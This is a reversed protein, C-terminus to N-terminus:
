GDWPNDVEEIITTTSSSQKQHNVQYDLNLDDDDAGFPSQILDGHDEFFIDFEGAVPSGDTHDVGAGMLSGSLNKVAICWDVMDEELFSRFTYKKESRSFFSTGGPVNIVFVHEIPTNMVSGLSTAGSGPGSEPVASTGPHMIPISANPASLKSYQDIEPDHRWFRLAQANLENLARAHLNMNSGPTRYKGQSSPTEPSGYLHLFGSDTLICFFVNWSKGFTGGSRMLFGSREIRVPRMPVCVVSSNKRASNSAESIATSLLSSSINAYTCSIFGDFPPVELSWEWDLKHDLLAETWEPTPPQTAGENIVLTPVCDSLLFDASASNQKGKVTLIDSVISSMKLTAFDELNKTDRYLDTLLTSFVSKESLFLKVKANLFQETIFVDPSTMCNNVELHGDTLSFRTRWAREHGKAANKLMAHVNEVRSFGEKLRRIIDSAWNKLKLTTEELEKYVTGKLLTSFTQTDHFTRLAHAQLPGIWSHQKKYNALSDDSSDCGNTSVVGGEVAVALSPARANRSNGLLATGLTAAMRSHAIESRRCDEEYDQLFLSVAAIISNWSSLRSEILSKVSQEVPTLTELSM